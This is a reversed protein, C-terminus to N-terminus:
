PAGTKRRAPTPNDILYAHLGSAAKLAREILHNLREYEPKAIYRKALAEDTSDLLEGLSGKAINVFRAFEAHGYKWFGEATNRCASNAARRAQGCFELDRRISDRGTLELIASRVQNALQWSELERHHRVGMDQTPLVDHVTRLPQSRAPKRSTGELNLLIQSKAWSGPYCIRRRVLVRVAAGLVRVAAGLVRVWCAAGLVWCQPASISKDM